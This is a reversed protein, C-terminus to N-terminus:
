NDNIEGISEEVEGWRRDGLQCDCATEATWSEKREEPSTSSDPPLPINFKSVELIYINSM